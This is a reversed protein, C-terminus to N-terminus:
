NNGDSSRSASSGGHSRAAAELIESRSVAITFVHDATEIKSLFHEGGVEEFSVQVKDASSSDVQITPLVMASGRNESSSLILVGPDADKLRKVRYTGAPLATGAVVFKYPVTVVIQDVAQGKTAIGLGAVGILAILIRLCHKRMVEGKFM